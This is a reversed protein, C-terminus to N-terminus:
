MPYTTEKPDSYPSSLGQAQDHPELYTRIRAHIPINGHPQPQQQEIKFVNALVTM